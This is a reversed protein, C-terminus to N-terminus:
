VWMSTLRMSSRVLLGVLKGNLLMRLGTSGVKNRSGFELVQVNHPDTATWMNSAQGGKQNCAHLVTTHTQVPRM